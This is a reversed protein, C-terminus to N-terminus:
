CRIMAAELDAIKAQLRREDSRRRFMTPMMMLVATIAGLAFCIAVMIALSAELQWFFVTVKVAAANQVAFIVAFIMGLLILAFRM